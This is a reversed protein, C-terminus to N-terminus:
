ATVLTNDPQLGGLRLALGLLCAASFAFYSGMLIFSSGPQDFTIWNFDLAFFALAFGASAAGAVGLFWKDAVHHRVSMATVLAFIGVCAAMLMLLLAFYPRLMLPGKWLLPVLGYASLALGHLFLLWFRAERTNWIAAVVSCVGAALALLCMDVMVDKASLIRLIPSDGPDMMLFNMIALMAELVGCLALLWLNKAQTQM